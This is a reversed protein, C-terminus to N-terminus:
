CSGCGYDTSQYYYGGGSPYCKYTVVLRSYSSSCYYCARSYVTCSAAADSEPLVASLLEDRFRALYRKM